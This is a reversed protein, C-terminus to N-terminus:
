SVRRAVRRATPIQCGCGGTVARRCLVTATHAAAWQMTQRLLRAIGAVRSALSAWSRLKQRSTPPPATPPFQPSPFVDTISPCSLSLSLSIPLCSFFSSFCQVQSSAVSPTSSPATALTSGLSSSLSSSSLSPSSLSSTISVTSTATATAATTPAESTSVPTSSTSAARSVVDTGTKRGLNICHSVLSAVTTKGSSFIMHRSM